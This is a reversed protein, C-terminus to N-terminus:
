SYLSWGLLGGAASIGLLTKLDRIEGGEMMASIKERDLHLVEIDEHDGEEGGGKGIMDADRVEAFYLYLKETLIGPSAYATHLLSVRSVRYGTEELIERTICVEPSEGPDVLGAPIEVSWANEEKVMMGIRFQRVCVVKDQDRNYVVAGTANPRHLVYRTLEPSLGGRILEVQLRYEDVEFFGNLLRNRDLIRYHEQKM